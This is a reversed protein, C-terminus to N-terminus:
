GSSCWYERKGVISFLESNCCDTVVALSRHCGWQIIEFLTDQNVPSLTSKALSLCWKSAWFGRSHPDRCHFPLEMAMGSPLKPTWCMGELTQQLIICQMLEKFCLSPSAWLTTTNLSPHFGGQQCGPPNAASQLAARYGAWLSWLHGPSEPPDCTHIFMICYKSWQMRPSSCNTGTCASPPPYCHLSRGTYKSKLKQVMAGPLYFLTRWVSCTDSMVSCCVCVCLKHSTKRWPFRYLFQWNLIKHTERQLSFNLMLVHFLTLLSCKSKKLGICLVEWCKLYPKLMERLRWINHQAPIHM